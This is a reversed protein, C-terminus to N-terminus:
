FRLQGSFQVLRGVLLGSGSVTTSGSEPLRWRDGLLPNSSLVSGDNLLNYFDVNAQLRGGTWIRFERSLRLDLQVRRKEYFTNPAILPVRATANCVVQVGCAALNRRLSPAIEANPVLYDALYPSGPVNQLVGAVFFAAPLAYSGHLKVQTQAKFGRVVRCNLLQQPSDVVFCDDDVTRGTDVGGGLQNGGPLQARFNFGLFDSTRTQSGFDAAPRVLNSVLGFKAPAVDYLGCVQYGGGGPLRPDSPATICYPSFDDPTVEVNDTLRFNEHWSRYYGATV